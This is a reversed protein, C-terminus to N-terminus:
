RTAANPKAVSLNHSKVKGNNSNNGQHTYVFGTPLLILGFSLFKITNHAICYEGVPGEFLEKIIM